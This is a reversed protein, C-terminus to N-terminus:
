RNKKLAHGCRGKESRLKRAMREGTAAVQPIRGRPSPMMTDYKQKVSAHHADIGQHILATSFYGADASLQEPLIQTQSRYTQL